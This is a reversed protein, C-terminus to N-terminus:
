GGEKKGGGLASSLKGMLGENEPKSHGTLGGLLSGHSQDKADHKGGLAGQIQDVLGHGEDKKSTSGLHIGKLAGGIEDVLSEHQPPKTDHKGSFTSGIKDALGKDKVPEHHGGKLAAGDKSSEHPTGHKEDHKGSFASGIKDLVGQDKPPQVPTPAPHPKADHTGGFMAGIKDFAGEEKAHQPPTPKTETKGGLASGIKDLLGEEVAPPPPHPSKADHKGSFVSGIKDFVGEEVPPPPPTPPKAHFMDGIKDVLSADKHGTSTNTTHHTDAPKKDADDHHKFIDMTYLLPSRHRVLVCRTAAKIVVRWRDLFQFTQDILKVALSLDLNPHPQAVVEERRLILFSFTRPLSRSHLYFPFSSRKETGFSTCIRVDDSCATLVSDARHCKFM